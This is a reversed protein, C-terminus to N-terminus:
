AKKWKIVTKPMGIQLELHCLTVQKFTRNLESQVLGYFVNVQHAYNQIFIVSFPNDVFDLQIIQAKVIRHGLIPKKTSKRVIYVVDTRRQEKQGLYYCYTVILDKLQSIQHALGIWQLRRICLIDIHLQYM